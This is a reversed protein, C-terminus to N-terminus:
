QLGGTPECRVHRPTTSATRERARGVNRDIIEDAEAYLRGLQNIIEDLWTTWDKSESM